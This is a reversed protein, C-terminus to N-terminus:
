STDPGDSKLRKAALFTNREEGKEKVSEPEAGVSNMTPATKELPLDNASLLGSLHHPM